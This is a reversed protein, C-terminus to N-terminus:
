RKGAHIAPYDSELPAAIVEVRDPLYTRVTAMVNVVTPDGQLVYTYAITHHIPFQSRTPFPGFVWQKANNEAAEILLPSAGSGRASVVKGDATIVLEVNVNGQIKAYQAPSPYEPETMYQVHLGSQQCGCILLVALVALLRSIESRPSTGDAGIERCHGNKCQIVFMRPTRSM